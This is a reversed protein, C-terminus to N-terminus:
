RPKRSELMGLVARAQRRAEAWAPDDVLAQESWRHVNAAGGFSNFHGTLQALAATAEAGLLGNKELRPSFVLVADNLSQSIEDVPYGHSRAWDLQEGPAAAVVQLDDWLEAFLEEPPVVSRVQKVELAVCGAGALCDQVQGAVSRPAGQRLGVFLPGGPGLVVTKVEPRGLCAQVREPDVLRGTVTYRTTEASSACVQKWWSTDRQDPAAHVANRVADDSSPVPRLLLVEVEAPLRVHHERIYHALGEPWVLHGDTQEGSGNLQGCLRCFSYGMGVWDTPTGDDLRQAVKESDAQDAYDDVFQAVDPWGPAHPGLWFGITRLLVACLARDARVLLAM